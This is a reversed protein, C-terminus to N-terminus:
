EEPTGPFFAQFLQKAYSLTNSRYIVFLLDFVFMM